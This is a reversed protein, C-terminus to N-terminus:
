TPVPPLELVSLGKLNPKPGSNIQILSLIFVYECTNVSTILVFALVKYGLLLLAAEFWSPPILDNSESPNLIPSEEPNLSTSSLCTAHHQSAPVAAAVAEVSPLIVGDACHFFVVVPNLM